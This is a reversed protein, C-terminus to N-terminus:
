LVPTLVQLVQASPPAHEIAHTVRAATRADANQCAASATAAGALQTRSPVQHDQDFAVTPMQEAPQEHSPLSATSSQGHKNAGVRLALARDANNRGPEEQRTQLQTQRKNHQM